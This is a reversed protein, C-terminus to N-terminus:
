KSKIRYLLVGEGRGGSATVLHQEHQSSPEKKFLTTSVQKGLEEHSLNDFNTKEQETSLKSLSM